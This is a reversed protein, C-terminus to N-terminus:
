FLLYYIPNLNIKRPTFLITLGDKLAPTNVSYQLGKMDDRQIGVTASAGANYSENEFDVDQYQFLINNSGEFLIAQFTVGNTGDYHPVNNWQIILKRKPATGRVEWYVGGGSSPDLDDWLVAILDPFSSTPIATNSYNYSTSTFSVTGNSNINVTNYPTKYFTFNFPLEIAKSNDDDMSLNTGSSSIDEFAFAVTSDNMDYVPPTPIYKEVGCASWVNAVTQTDYGLDKAAQIWDERADSYRTSSTHYVYNARLAVEAAQPIGIGTINYDHGDNDGEGGMALLYFAFNAVGSNTHVGGNDGTGTYWNTGKYYSPQDYRQPDKMDRLATSSVWCDEGILWDSKGAQADPYASTGDGQVHFEVATGIIDSYAENLAGSEYQYELDSTYQTIAHGYEHSAVDLVTLPNSTSGDGDGFYFSSGNWYANVYNDGVHITARAFAGNDDFSNRNLITSVYNQTDEFNKACSVAAPDITDWSSSANQEWDDADEDYIGWKHDFSYLFYNNSGNSNEKFGTITVNSGDEGDLRTGTIEAAEGNEETPQSYHIMNYANIVKGSQANIYYYWRGPEKSEYAITYFWALQGNYIVLSPKEDIHLNPKGKHIEMAVRVAADASVSPTTSIDLSPQYKGNIMYVTDKQNIHVIIEAGVVPINKYTQSIRLHTFGLTDKIEKHVSASSNGTFLSVSKGKSFASLTKKIGHNFIGQAINEAATISNQDLKIHLDKQTVKHLHVSQNLQKHEGNLTNQSQKIGTEESPARFAHLQVPAISLQLAVASLVIGSM